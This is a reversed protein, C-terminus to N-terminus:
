RDFRIGGSELKRKVQKAKRTQMANRIVYESLISPNSLWGAMGRAELATPQHDTLFQDILTDIARSLEQLPANAAGYENFIPENESM